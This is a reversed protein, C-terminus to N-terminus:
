VGDPVVDAFECRQCHLPPFTIDCTLPLATNGCEPAVNVAVSSLIHDRTPTESWVGSRVHARAHPSCYLNLQIRTRTVKDGNGYLPTGSHLAPAM